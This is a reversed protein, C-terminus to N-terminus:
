HNGKEAHTAALAAFMGNAKILEDYTGTEVVHGRDMVVILDATRIGPLCFRFFSFMLDFKPM